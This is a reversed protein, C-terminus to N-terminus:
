LSGATGFEECKGMAAAGEKAGKMTLARMNMQAFRLISESEGFCLRQTGRRAEVAEGNSDGVEGVPPAGACGDTGSCVSFSASGEGNDGEAGIDM